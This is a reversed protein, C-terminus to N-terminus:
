DRGAFAARCVGRSSDEMFSVLELVREDGGSESRVRSYAVRMPLGSVFLTRWAVKLTRMWDSEFEARRLGVVNLGFLKARDGQAITFPPVDQACIAGGGVMALRGIRVHQHVGALGGMMVGDGVTVHGAIGVSNAVVCDSGILCDHAVHSNAMFYNRDGIVTKGREGASSARHATTFERFVNDTGIELLTPSGDHRLDQPELGVAAHPFIRTRAGIVCPGMVVAHAGVSVGEGLVVGDGIVAFPGIEVGEALQAGSDVVATPHIAM